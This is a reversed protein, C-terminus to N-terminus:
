QQEGATDAQWVEVAGIGLIHVPDMPPRKPTEPQQAEDAMRRLDGDLVQV